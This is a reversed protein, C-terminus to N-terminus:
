LCEFFPNWIIFFINGVVNIKSNKLISVWDSDYTFGYQDKKYFYCMSGGTSANNFTVAACTHMKKCDDLCASLTSAGSIEFHNFLRVGNQYVWTSVIIIFFIKFNKSNLKNKESRWLPEEYISHENKSSGLSQWM